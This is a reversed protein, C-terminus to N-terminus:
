ATTLYYFVAKKKDKNLLTQGLFVLQPSTPRNSLFVLTHTLYFVIGWVTVQRSPGGAEDRLRGVSLLCAGHQVVHLGAHSDPPASSGRCRTPPRTARFPATVHRARFRAARDLCSRQATRRCGARRAVQHEVHLPALLACIPAARAAVVATRM